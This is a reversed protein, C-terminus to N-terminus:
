RVKHVSQGQEKYYKFSSVNYSYKLNYKKVWQSYDHRGQTAVSTVKTYYNALDIQLWQSDDKTLAVWAGAKVSYKQFGLRGQIAAHNESHESSASIQKDLIAGSKM